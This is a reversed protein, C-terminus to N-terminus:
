SRRPEPGLLRLREGVGTTRQGVQAGDPWPDGCPDGAPQFVLRGNGLGIFSPSPEQRICLDPLCEIRIRQPLRRWAGVELHMRRVAVAAEREVLHDVGRSREPPRENRDRIVGLRQPDRVPHRRLLEGLLPPGDVGEVRVELADAVGEADQSRHLDVQKGVAREVHVVRRQGTQIQHETREVRLQTRADVLRIPVDGCKTLWPQVHERM